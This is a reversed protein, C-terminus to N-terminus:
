YHLKLVLGQGVSHPYLLDPRGFYDIQSTDSATALLQHSVRVQAHAQHSTNITASKAKLDKAIIRAQGRATATLSDTKGSLTIAGKGSARIKTKANQEWNIEILGGDAQNIYATEARGKLTIHGAGFNNLKLNVADLGKISVIGLSMNNLVGLNIPGNAWLSTKGYLMVSPLTIPGFLYIQKADKANLAFHTPSLAKVTVNDTARLRLSRLQRLSVNVTVNKKKSRLDLVGKEQAKKVFSVNGKHAPMYVVNEKAGTTINLNFPGQATIVNVPSIRIKVFDEEALPQYGQSKKNFTCATLSVICLLGILKIIKNM